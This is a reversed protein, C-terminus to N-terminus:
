ENHLHKRAWMTTNRITNRLMVKNSHHWLLDQLERPCSGYVMLTRIAKVEAPELIRAELQSLEYKFDDVNGEWATGSWEHWCADRGRDYYWGESNFVPDIQKFGQSLLDDITLQRVEDDTRQIDDDALSEHVWQTNGFLSNLPLIKFQSM